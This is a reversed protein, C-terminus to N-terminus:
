AKVPAQQEVAAAGKAITARGIDSAIYANVDCRSASDHRHRRWWRRSISGDVISKWLNTRLQRSVKVNGDFVGRGSAHAVICKHLQDAEGRPHDLVLKSHLDQLQSAGALLFHRMRTTTDPGAQAVGVDHRTLGGGVRAEVLSYSSGEAQDVLTAKFHVSGSAEREVYGHKLSACAELLVEAVAFVAHQGSSADASVYEEVVELEAGKALSLLLRPASASLTRAEGESSATATAVNVVYLPRGIRLRPPVAVVLVEDALAGNLVAFPGGRSNSLEGQPKLHLLCACYTQPHLM